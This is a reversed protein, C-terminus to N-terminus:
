RGVGMDEIMQRMDDTRARKRRRKQLPLTSEYREQNLRAMHRKFNWGFANPKDGTYWHRLMQPHVAKGVRHMGMMCSVAKVQGARRMYGLNVGVSTSNISAGHKGAIRSSIEKASLPRGASQLVAMIIAQTVRAERKMCLGGVSHFDDRRLLGACVLLNPETHIEDQTGGM